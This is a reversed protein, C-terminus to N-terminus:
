FVHKVTSVRQILVQLYVFLLHLVFLLIKTRLSRIEPFVLLTSLLLHLLHLTDLLPEIAILVNTSSSILQLQGKVEIFFLHHGLLFHIVIICFSNIGDLFQLQFVHETLLFIRHLTHQFDVRTSTTRFSLIPRLHQHTHVLTPSLCVIILNANGVQLITILSTDLADGHLYFAALIGIAIQLGLSPDM